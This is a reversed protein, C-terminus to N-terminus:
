YINRVLRLDKGDIELGELIKILQEHKVCDFVKVDDIFCIYLDRQKERCKEIITKLCLIANRTGKGPRYSFQEDSMIERIPGKIRSLEVRLFVKTIHCMLRTNCPAIVISELM